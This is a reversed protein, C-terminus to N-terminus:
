RAGSGTAPQGYNGAYPCAAPFELRRVSLNSTANVMPNADTRVIHVHSIVLLLRLAARLAALHDLHDGGAPRL